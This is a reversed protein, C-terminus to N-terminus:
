DDRIKKRRLKRHYSVAFRHAEDRVAQLLHLEPSDKRLRLPEKEGSIYVEEDREALSIVSIDVGMRAFVRIATNLQAKGGDVLILDPMERREKESDFRRLLIEELMRCDDIGKVSKIKYRRYNDKDPVGGKFSVGSGTASDGQINSVDYGEIYYPISKLYLLSQLNVLVNSEGYTFLTKEDRLPFRKKMEDLMFLRKKIEEAKEFELKEGAEVMQKELKRTFQQYNGKLFSIIGKVLKNYEAVSIEGECPGACRKIHYQTCLRVRGKELNYKCSRVPYYRRIFRIVNKILAVNTFPGFYLSKEDQTERVVRISPYREDTIKVFPYSKDDKLSINYKPQNKKIFINELILAEAESAVPVFEFDDIESILSLNKINSESKSFYSTIRKKLSIAKGVYIVKGKSDKMLYVGPFNPTNNLKKLVKRRNM